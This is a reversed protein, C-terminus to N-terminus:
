DSKKYITSNKRRKDCNRKMKKSATRIRNYYLGIADLDCQSMFWGPISVDCESRGVRAFM